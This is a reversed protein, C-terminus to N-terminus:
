LVDGLSYFWSSQLQVQRIIRIGEITKRFPRVRLQRTLAARTPSERGLILRNVTRQDAEIRLLATPESGVKMEQHQWPYPDTIRLDFTPIRVAQSAMSAVFRTPQTSSVYHRAEPESPILGADRMSKEVEVSVTPVNVRIREAGALVAHQECATILISAAQKRPGDPDIAFEIIDGNDKVFAYALVRNNDGQVVIAGEASMGPQRRCRWAIDTKSRRIVGALHSHARNFLEALSGDDEPLATRVTLETDRAFETMAVGYFPALGDAKHPWVGGQLPSPLGLKRKSCSWLPYNAVETVISLDSRSLHLACIM